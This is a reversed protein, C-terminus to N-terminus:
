HLGSMYYAVAKMDAEDMRKSIDEMINSYDNKRQGSKFAQLQAVTYLPQQGSVMPFGAEANGMGSPGHCAICAAIGRGFDGGRYLREGLALYEKPTKGQPVSQKHYYAAVDEMDQTTLSALVPAMVGPSRSDGKKMDQLQKLLYDYHQGALSPWAPNVSVGLAGHCASCVVSKTEGMKENGHACGIQSAICLILVFVSRIMAKM